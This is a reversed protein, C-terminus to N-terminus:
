MKQSKRRKTRRVPTGYIRCTRKKSIRLRARRVPTGSKRFTCTKSIESTKNQACFDWFNQFYMKQSTRRKTWRVPTGSIMFTWKNLNGVIQGACLHGPFGSLGNNSIETKKKTRRVPTGSNKFTRKRIESTKNQVCSEWFEQFHMKRSTRRRTRRVPTGSNRVTCHKLNGVHQEASLLGM